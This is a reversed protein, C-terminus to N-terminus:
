RRLKDAAKAERASRTDQPPPAADSSPSSAEGGRHKLAFDEGSGRKSHPENAGHVMERMLMNPAGDSSTNTTASLM